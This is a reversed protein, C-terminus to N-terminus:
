HLAGAIADQQLREHKKHETSEMQETQTRIVANCHM